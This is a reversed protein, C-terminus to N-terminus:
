ANSESDQNLKDIIRISPIDNEITDQDLQNYIESLVEVNQMLYHFEEFHILKELLQSLLQLSDTKSTNINEFIQAFIQYQDLLAMQEQNAQICSLIFLDVTISKTTYTMDPLLSILSPYIGKTIFEDVIEFETTEKKLYISLLQLSAVTNSVDDNNILDCLTNIPLFSLDCLNNEDKVILKYLNYMAIKRNEFSDQDEDKINQLIYILDTYIPANLIYHLLEDNAGDIFNDLSLIYTRFDNLNLLLSYIPFLKLQDEIPIPYKTKSLFIIVDSWQSIHYIFQQDISLCQDIFLAYLGSEYFHQVLENSCHFSNGLLRSYCLWFKFKFNFPKRSPEEFPYSMIKLFLDGDCILEPPFLLEKTFFIANTIISIAKIQCELHEFKIILDILLNFVNNEKFINLYDTPFYDCMYNWIKQLRFSIADYDLHSKFLALLNKVEFQFQEEEVTPPIQNPLGGFEFILAKDLQLTSDSLLTKYACNM